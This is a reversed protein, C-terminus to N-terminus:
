QGFLLFQRRLLKQSSPAHDALSPVDTNRVRSILSPRVGIIQRVCRNRFGDLRRLQSKTLCSGALGYFLKSEATSTDIRLKRPWALSSHSWVKEVNHFEM